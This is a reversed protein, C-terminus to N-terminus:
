KLLTVKQGDQLFSVGAVAIIEGGELGEQVIVDNDRIGATKVPTKKVMSTKPAYVYVLVKQVNGSVEFSISPKDVPEVLGPYRRV